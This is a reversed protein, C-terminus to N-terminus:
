LIILVLECYREFQPGREKFIVKTEGDGIVITKVLHKPEKACGVEDHYTCEVQVKGDYANRMYHLAGEILPTGYDAIELFHGCAQSCVAVLTAGAVKVDEKTYAHHTSYVLMKGVEDTTMSAHNALYKLCERLAHVGPFNLPTITLQPM